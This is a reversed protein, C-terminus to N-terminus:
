NIFCVRLAPKGMENKGGALHLLAASAPAASFPPHPSTFSRIALSTASQRPTPCPSQNHISSAHFQATILPNSIVFHVMVTDCATLRYSGGRAAM